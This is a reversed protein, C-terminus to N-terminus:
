RRIPALFFGCRCTTDHTLLIGTSHHERVAQSLQGTGRKPRIQWLQDLSHQRGHVTHHGIFLQSTFGAWTVLRDRMPDAVNMATQSVLGAAASAGV